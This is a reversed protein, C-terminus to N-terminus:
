SVIKAKYHIEVNDIGKLEDINTNNLNDADANCFEDTWSESYDSM